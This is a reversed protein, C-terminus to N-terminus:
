SAQTGPSGSLAMDTPKRALARLEKELDGIVGVHVSM